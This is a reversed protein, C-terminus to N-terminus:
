EGPSTLVYRVVGDVETAALRGQAVLLDLHAATETVALLQNFPDLDTLTRLRRTWGLRGATEYVTTAGSAVAAQMQDLRVAHHRLLEDVRMHVSPTVPGHAPLLRLDPLTRVLALSDLYDRLALPATDAEFGISPTIHPLVHDGAFLLGAETDAFVVHGRTHGPTALADLRRGALAVTTPAALWDDPSEWISRDHVTGSIAQLLRILPEAGFRGLRSLEERLAPRTPDQVRRINEREGAGLSVRSGFERRVVIALTYHDRHIHTVLFRSIDALDYGLTALAKQLLERAETIAWGSDVLVVGTADEIAYVNVARLGDNPLPLPIRHVGPAVAFTGPATWDSAATDHAM